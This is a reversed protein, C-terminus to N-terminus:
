WNDKVFQLIGAFRAPKEPKRIPSAWTGSINKEVLSVYHPASKRASRVLELIEEKPCLEPTVGFEPSIELQVLYNSADIISQVDGSWREKAIEAVRLFFPHQVLNPAVWEQATKLVRAESPPLLLLPDGKPRDPKEYYAFLKELDRWKEKEVLHPVADAFARLEKMFKGENAGSYNPDTM